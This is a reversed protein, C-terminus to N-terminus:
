QGPLITLPPWVVKAGRMRGAGRPRGDRGPVMGVGRCAARTKASYTEISRPHKKHPRRQRQPAGNGTCSGGGGGQAGWWGGKVKV